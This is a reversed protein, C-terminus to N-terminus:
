DLIKVCPEIMCYVNLPAPSKSEAYPKELALLTVNEFTHKGPPHKMRRFLGSGCSSPVFFKTTRSHAFTLFNLSTRASVLADAYLM